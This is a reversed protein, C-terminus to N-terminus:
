GGKRRRAGRRTPALATRYAAALPQRFGDLHPVAADADADAAVCVAAVFRPHLFPM